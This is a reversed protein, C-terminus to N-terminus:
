SVNDHALNWCCWCHSDIKLSVCKKFVTLCFILPSHDFVLCHRALIFRISFFLSLSLSVKTWHKHSTIFCSPLVDVNNMLTLKWLAQQISHTLNNLQEVVVFLLSFFFVLFLKTQVRLHILYKSRAATHTHTHTHTEKTILFQVTLICNCWLARGGVCIHQAM